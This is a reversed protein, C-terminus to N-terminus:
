FQKLSETMNRVDLKGLNTTKIKRWKQILRTWNEISRSEEGKSVMKHRLIADWNSVAKKNNKLLM